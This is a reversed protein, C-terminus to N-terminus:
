PRHDKKIAVLRGKLNKKVHAEIVERAFRDPTIGPIIEAHIGLFSRYGTESLFPKEWDVAHAGFNMWPSYCAGIGYLGDMDVRVRMGRVEIVFSGGQGWLPVTEPDALTLRALMCGPADPGALIGPEGKNLRLALKHAEDRLKMATEGDAALLAAHHKEILDRLFPLAEDITAPLHGYQKEFAAQENAKDTDALLDDFCLQAPSTSYRKM